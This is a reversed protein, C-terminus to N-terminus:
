CRGLRTLVIDVLHQSACAKIRPHGSESQHGPILLGHAASHPPLQKNPVGQNTLLSQVCKCVIICRGSVKKTARRPDGGRCGEVCAHM